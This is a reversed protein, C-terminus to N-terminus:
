TACTPVLPLMRNSVACRSPTAWVPLTSARGANHASSLPPANSLSNQVSHSTPTPALECSTIPASNIPVWPPVTSDYQPEAATGQGHALVPKGPRPHPLLASACPASSVIWPPALTDLSESTNWASPMGAVAEHKNKSPVLATLAGNPSPKLHTPPPM